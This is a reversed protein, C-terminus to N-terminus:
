RTWKICCTNNFFSYNCPNAIMGEVQQSLEYYAMFFCAVIILLIIFIIINRKNGLILKNPTVVRWGLRDKRLYVKEGEVDVEKLQKRVSEPIM